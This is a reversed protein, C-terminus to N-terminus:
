RRRGALLTGVALGLAFSAYVGALAPRSLRYEYGPTLRHPTLQFDVFCAVGATAAATAMAPLPRVAKHRRNWAQAHLLAWFISAAHHILYGTLTHRVTPKDKHLAGDGWLWHSIANVPAAPRQPEVRGAILLTLASAISAVSGTILAERLTARWSTM